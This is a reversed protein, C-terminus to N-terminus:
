GYKIITKQSKNLYLNVSSTFKAFLKINSSLILGFINM